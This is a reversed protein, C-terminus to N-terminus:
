THATTRLLVPTSPALFEKPMVCRPSKAATLFTPTPAFFAALKATPSIRAHHTTV